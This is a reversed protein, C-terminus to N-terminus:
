EGSAKARVQKARQELATDVASQMSKLVYDEAETIMKLFNPREPRYNVDLKSEFQLVAKNLRTLWNNADVAKQAEKSGKGIVESDIKQHITGIVFALQIAELFAATVTLAQSIVVDSDGKPRATLVFNTTRAASRLMIACRLENEVVSLSAAVNADHTINVLKGAQKFANRAVDLPKDYQVQSYADCKEIIDLFPHRSQPNHDHILRGHHYVAIWIEPNWTKEFESLASECAQAWDYPEDRDILSGSERFDRAMRGGLRMTTHMNQARIVFEEETTGDDSVLPLTLRNSLAILPAHDNIDTPTADYVVFKERLLSSNFEQTM